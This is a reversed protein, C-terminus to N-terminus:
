GEKPPLRRGLEEPPIDATAELGTVVLDAVRVFEDALRGLDDGGYPLSRRFRRESVRRLEQYIVDMLGAEASRVSPPLSPYSWYVRDRYADATEGYLKGDTDPDPWAKHENSRYPWIWVLSALEVLERGLRTVTEAEGFCDDVPNPDVTSQPVNRAGLRDCLQEINTFCKSLVEMTRRFAASPQANSRGVATEEFRHQLAALRTHSWAVARAALDFCILPDGAHVDYDDNLLEPLDYEEPTFRTRRPTPRSRVWPDQQREREAEIQRAQRAHLDPRSRSVPWIVLGNGAQRKVVSQADGGDVEGLWLPWDAEDLVIPMRDQLVKIVPSAPITLIAFSRRKSGGRQVENWFGALAMPANAYRRRAAFPQGGSPLRHWLYFADVPVLCRRSKAIKRLEDSEGMDEVGIHARYDNRAGLERGGRM